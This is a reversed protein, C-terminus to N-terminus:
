EYRLAVMLDVRAARRVTTETSHGFLMGDSM